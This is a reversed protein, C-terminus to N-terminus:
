DLPTAMVAVDKLWVSGSGTLTVQLRVLDPRQGEKLLFPIQAQSWGTTGTLPSELGKSFYEGKGPFRVWMELYAEKALGESRMTASYDLRVDDVGPDAIEFLRVSRPGDAEIRWGGDEAVVGTKEIPTDAPGFTRLARPEGRKCGTAFAALCVAVGVHATRNTM